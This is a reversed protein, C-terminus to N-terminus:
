LFNFNILKEFEEISSVFYSNYGLFKKWARQEPSIVGTGNPNKFEVFVTKGGEGIIIRDPIGKHGNKELKVAALGKARAIMCCANELDKESKQKKMPQYQKDFEVKEFKEVKKKDAHVISTLHWCRCKNCYYSREPQKWEPHKNNENGSRIKIREIHEDAYRKSAFKVKRCSTTEDMDITNREISM